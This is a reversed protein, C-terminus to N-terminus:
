ERFHYLSWSTVARPFFAHVTVEHYFARYDEATCVHTFWVHMHRPPIKISLLLRKSLKDLGRFRVQAVEHCTPGVLITAFVDSINVIRGDSNFSAPATPPAINVTTADPFAISRLPVPRQDSKGLSDSTEAVAQSVGPAPLSPSPSGRPDPSADWLPTEPSMAVDPMPKSAMVPGSKDNSYQPEDKSCQPIQNETHPPGTEAPGMPGTTDVSATVDALNIDDVLRQEEERALREQILRYPTKIPEHAKVLEPPSPLQISTKAEKAAKLNVFTLHKPDPAPETRGAKEYRRKTSLRNFTEPKPGNSSPKRSTSESLKRPKVKAAWNGLVAAGSVKPKAKPGSVKHSLRAPGRGATGMHSSEPKPGKQIAGSYSGTTTAVKRPVHVTPVISAKKLPPERNENRKTPPKESVKKMTRDDLPKTKRRLKKHQENLAKTHLDEMLSDDTLAEDSSDAAANNSKPKGRSRIDADNYQPHDEDETEDNVIFGPYEPVRVSGGQRSRQARRSADHPVEEVEDSSEESTAKSTTSLGLQRRKIRRRAKRSETAAIWAEVRAELANVDYPKELGRSIRMKRAQWHHLTDDDQFNSETEWTCREDPYGEWKVLFEKIGGNMREALVGELPYEERPESPVTSMISVTDNDSGETSGVGDVKPM